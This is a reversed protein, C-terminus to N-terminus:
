GCDQMRLAEACAAAVQVVLQLVALPLELACVLGDLGKLEHCCCHSPGRLRLRCCCRLCHRRLRGGRRCLLVRGHLLLLLRHLLLATNHSSPHTAAACGM